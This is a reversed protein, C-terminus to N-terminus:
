QKADEEGHITLSNGNNRFAQLTSNYRHFQPAVGPKGFFKNATDETIFGKLILQLLCTRWGRMREALPAGQSDFNMISLEPMYGFTVWCGVELEGGPAKPPRVLLTVKDPHPHERYFATLGAKRLTSIFESHTTINGIRAASDAYEEPKIWQYQKAVEQSMEQQRHLEEKNQNSTSEETYYNEAYALVASELESGMKTSMEAAYSDWPNVDQNLHTGTLQQPAVM